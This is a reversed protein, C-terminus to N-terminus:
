NTIETVFVPNVADSVDYIVLGSSVYCILLDGYNIVDQFNYTSLKKRLIPKSPQQVNYISLGNSMQCVYLISDRLGLGQPSPIETLSVQKPILLNNLEYVYLGDTANGCRGSGRLTVFAHTDNAVVPDCSRLHLVTGILTPKAANAISYLYMGNQAGIFLKDKYPFITEIGFGVEEINKQVSQSPNSIDFTKLTSRDAVYLYNGVITFRALSGGVGTGSSAYSNAGVSGDKACSACFLILLIIAFINKPIKNM